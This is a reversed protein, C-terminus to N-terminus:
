CSEMFSLGKLHELCNMHERFTQSDQITTGILDELKEVWGNILEQKEAASLPGDEALEDTLSKLNELNM